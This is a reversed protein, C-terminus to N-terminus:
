LNIRFGASIAPRFPYVDSGFLFLGRGGVVFLLHDSLFLEVRFHM